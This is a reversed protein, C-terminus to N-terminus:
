TGVGKKEYQAHAEQNAEYQEVRGTMRPQHDDVLLMIVEKSAVEQM